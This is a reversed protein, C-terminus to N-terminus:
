TCHTGHGNDGEDRCRVPNNLDSSSVLLFLCVMQGAYQVYKLREIRIVLPGDLRKNFIASGKALAEM